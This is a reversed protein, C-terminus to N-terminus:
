AMAQAERFGELVADDVERPAVCDGIRRVPLGRAKLQHYLSDDSTRLMSLVVTDAALTEAPGGLTSRLTAQGPEIREVSTCARLAVGAQVVRPMLWPWDLTAELKRGLMGDATVVTVEHGAASLLRALGLPLYDGNDDVILVRRGCGSLHELAGLADIVHPLEAGPIADRDTRFMSFGSTQWRAGTAVIVEDAAWAAVADATAETNLVIEVGRRRVSAELDDVLFRWSAYDPLLGAKRIQGGLGGSREWLTVRHGRQAATDAFKLGGPGGGIVLVKKASAAPKAVAVGFQLERGAAPNVTCSVNQGLRRWCGQNAGVCRRTQDARGERAKNVIEPDAIHARVLGVLDSQGRRVIAAATGLERVSGQILLPIRGGLAERVRAAHAALPATEGSSQPPVLRHNQHYDTHSLCVYDFWRAQELLQLVRLTEDPTTGATGLYEDLSLKIGIVFDSGCRRRVAKGIELALRARRETDGGWADNRRNWYPSLFNSLLYGHSGHIEVGDGGGAKVNACTAAFGEIVERIDEEEMPKPTARHVPSPIQSPAMVAGWLGIDDTRRTGSAGMHTIQVFVPVGQRRSPAVFTRVADAWAPEWPSVGARASAPHVHFGHTVILGVGGRAREALYAGYAAPPLSVQHAPLYIRNRAQVQGIGIPNWLADLEQM